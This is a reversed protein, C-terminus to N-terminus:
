GEEETDALVYTKYLHYQETSILREMLTEDCWENSLFENFCPWIDGNFGTEELFGWFDRMGEEDAEVEGWYESYKDLLDHITYGHHIMWHLKFRDYADSQLQGLMLDKDSTNIM